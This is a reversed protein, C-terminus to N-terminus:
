FASFLQTVGHLIIWSLRSNQIGYQPNQIVPLPNQIGQTITFSPNWIENLLPIAFEEASNQIRYGLIKSKALLYKGSELIGHFVNTPFSISDIACTSKTITSETDAWM